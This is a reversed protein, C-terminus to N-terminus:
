TKTLAIHKEWRHRSANWHNFGGNLYKNIAQSLNVDINFLYEPCVKGKFNIQLLGCDVSWAKHRDEKTKCSVSKDTPFIRKEKLNGEKDYWCNWNMARPNFGSEFEIIKAFIEHDIGFVSIREKVHREIFEEETRPISVAQGITPFIFLGTVALIKLFKFLNLSRGCITWRRHKFSKQEFLSRWLHRRYELATDM